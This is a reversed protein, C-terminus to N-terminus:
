LRTPPSCTLHGAWGFIINSIEVSRADKDSGVGGKKLGSNEPSDDIEPKPKIGVSNKPNVRM